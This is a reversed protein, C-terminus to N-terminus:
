QQNDFYEDWDVVQNRLWQSEQRREIRRWAAMGSDNGPADEVEGDDLSELDLDSAFSYELEDFEEYIEQDRKAM